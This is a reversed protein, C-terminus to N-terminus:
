ENAVRRSSDFGMDPDNRWDGAMDVVHLVKQKLELSSKGAVLAKTVVSALKKM